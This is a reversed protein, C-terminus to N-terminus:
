LIDNLLASCVNMLERSAEAATTSKQSTDLDANRKNGGAQSASPGDNTLSPGVWLVHAREPDGGDPRMIDMAELAASLPKNNLRSLIQPRLNHLLEIASSLSPSTKSSTEPGKNAEAQSSDLSMVGLTFHLRRAPIIVSNDLGQIPPQSSLLLSTFKAAVSRLSEHTGQVYAVANILFISTM